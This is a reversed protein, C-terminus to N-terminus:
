KGNNCDVETISRVQSLPIWIKQHMENNGTVYGDYVSGGYVWIAGGDTLQVDLRDSCTSSDKKKQMGECSTLALVVFLTLVFAIKKMM